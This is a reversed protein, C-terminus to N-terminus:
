CRLIKMKKMFLNLYILLSIQHYKRLITLLNLLHHLIQIISKIYFCPDLVLIGEYTDISSLVGIVDFTGRNLKSEDAYKKINEEDVLRCYVYDRTALGEEVYGEDSLYVTNGSNSYAWAMFPTKIIKGLYKDKTKQRNGITYLEGTIGYFDKNCQFTNAIEAYQSTLGM